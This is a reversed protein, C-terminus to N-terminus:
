FSSLLRWFLNHLKTRENANIKANKCYKQKGKHKQRLTDEAFFFSIITVEFYLFVCNIQM